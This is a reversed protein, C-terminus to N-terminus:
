QQGREREQFEEVALRTVRYERGGFRYAALRGGRIWTRVTQPKKGFLDAVQQVTLDPELQLGQEGLWEHVARVPLTVSGGEPMGDVIRRLRENLSVARSIGGAGSAPMM